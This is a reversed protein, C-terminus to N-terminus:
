KEGRLTEKLIEIDDAKKIYNFVGSMELLKEVTGKCVVWCRGGLIEASKKRGMLMGIGSSDMFSLGSLDFVVNRCVNALIARDITRKTEDATHHDLEGSLAIILIGNTNKIRIKM